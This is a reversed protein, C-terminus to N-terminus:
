TVKHIRWFTSIGTLALRINERTKPFFADVIFTSVTFSVVTAIIAGITGYIPILFYNVTINTIAGIVANLLSNKFLSENVVYFGKGIGINTFLIRISFLSFLFGAPRYEEGYLFVISQEGFFFIPIGVILFLAFMLRYFNIVRDHYLETSIAKAKTVAPSFTRVLMMPIIAYIEIFKMAVSYQGVENNSLMDGLMVQDIKAQTQLAIGHFMIPWSESLFKYSLEKKFNWQLPDGKRKKYSYVYGIANFVVNLATIVAFGTVTAHGLLLGVKLLNSIINIVIQTRAVYKSQVLSQYFSGVVDFARFLEASAIILILTNTLSDTKMFFLIVTILVVVVVSGVLKIVFCTGLLEDKKDPDKALERVLLRDIGFSSITGFIAAFSIAYNLLGFAEPQLYRAVYISVVLSLGLTFVKEFILWFTNSFYKKYKPDQLYKQM